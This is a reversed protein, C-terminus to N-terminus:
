KGVKYLDPFLKVCHDMVIYVQHLLTMVLSPEIASSIETFGAIDSFFVCMDEYIEPKVPMGCLVAKAVHPPLILSLLSANNNFHVPYLDDETVDSFASELAEEAATDAANNLPPAGNTLELVTSIGQRLAVATNQCTSHQGTSEDM